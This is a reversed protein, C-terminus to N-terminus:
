KNSRKKLKVEHLIQLLEGDDTEFETAHTLREYEKLYDSLAFQAEKIEDSINMMEEKVEVNAKQSLIRQKIELKKKNLDRVEQDIEQYSADNQFASDLIEKHSKMKERMKKVDTLYGKILQDLRMVMEAKQADPTSEDVSSTDLGAALEATQSPEEEQAPDKKRVTVGDEIEELPEIEVMPEGEQTPKSDAPQTEATNEENIVQESALQEEEQDEVPNKQDTPNM